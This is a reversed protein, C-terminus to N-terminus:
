RALAPTLLIGAAVGLATGAAAGLWASRPPASAGDDAVYRHLLPVGGGVVIGIAAGGVVDTPFHAGAEVRLASTAGALAGGVFGIAAHERWDAAPRTLVHDVITFSAARWADSAHGSPFSYFADPSTADYRPDDPREAEPLYTYPRPRSIAPKLAATLGDVILETEWLLIVRRLTAGIRRGAPASAVFLVYPMARAASLTVDSADWAELSADGVARRDWALGIDDVDFGQAPVPRLDPDIRLALRDLGYGVGM